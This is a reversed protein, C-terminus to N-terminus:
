TNNQCSTNESSRVIGRSQLCCQLLLFAQELIKHFIKRTNLYANTVLIPLSTLVWMHPVKKPICKKQLIVIGAVLLSTDGDTFAVEHDLATSSATCISLNSYLREFSQPGEDKWTLTEFPTAELERWTNVFLRRLVHSQESLDQGTRPLCRIIEVLCIRDFHLDSEKSM